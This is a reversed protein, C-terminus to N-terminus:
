MEVKISFFRSCECKYWSVKVCTRSWVAGARFRVPAPIKVNRIPWVAKPLEATHGPLQPTHPLQVFEQLLKCGSIVGLTHQLTGDLEQGGQPFLLGTVEETLGEGIVMMKVSVLYIERWM